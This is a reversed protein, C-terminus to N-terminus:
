AHQVSALLKVRLKAAALTFRGCALEGGFASLGWKYQPAAIDFESPSRITVGNSRPSSIAHALGDLWSPSWDHHLLRSLSLVLRDNIRM